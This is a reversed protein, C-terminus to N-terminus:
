QFHGCKGNAQPRYPMTHLKKIQSFTCLQAILSSEFNCGKKSVIKEPLGYHMFYKDCLTQAVVMATQSPTVYAQTYRFFHDMVIMINVEKDGKGSEMTLFDIHVLEMPHTEPIPHLEAHWPKTKFCLSRDCTKIPQEVDQKM